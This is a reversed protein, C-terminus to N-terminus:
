SIIKQINEICIKSSNEFEGIKQKLEAPNMFCTEIVAEENTRVLPQELRLIHVRLTYKELMMQITM